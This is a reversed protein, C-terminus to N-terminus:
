NIGLSTFLSEWEKNKDQLIKNESKLQKIRSMRKDLEQVMEEAEQELELIRSSQELLMSENKAKESQIFNLLQIKSMDRLDLTNLYRNLLCRKNSRISGGTALWYEFCQSGKNMHEIILRMGPHEPVNCGSSVEDYGFIGASKIGTDEELKAVAIKIRHPTVRKNTRILMYKFDRQVLVYFEDLEIETSTTWIENTINQGDAGYSFLWVKKSAEKQM